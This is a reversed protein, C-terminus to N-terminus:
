WKLIPKNGPKPKGKNKIGAVCLPPFLVCWWNKGKAQGIQVKVARYMGAPFLAGEYTRDPFMETVISVKVSQRSGNLRLTEESLCRIDNQLRGVLQEAQKADKCQALEEGYEQLIADRVKLKRDQDAKENSSALVHLRLINPAQKKRADAAQIVGSLIGSALLVLALLLGWFRIRKKM